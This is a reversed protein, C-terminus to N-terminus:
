LRMEISTAKGRDQTPFPEERQASYNTPTGRAAADRDGLTWMHPIQLSDKGVAGAPVWCSNRQPYLIQM